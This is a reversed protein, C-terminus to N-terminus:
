LGLSKDQGKEYVWHTEDNADVVRYELVFPKFLEVAKHVDQEVMARDDQHIISAYSRVRNNIFDSAPYGSLTRVAESIFEMTWHEDLACRYVVGAINGVLSRFREESATLQATRELVRQELETRSAILEFQVLVRALVEERQIPKAIFDAGGVQFSRVRDDTDQLASIFIIPVKATSENQKLRQCVEFGSMGPMKIDLLILAPPNSLASALALEPEQTQRVRYGESILIDALLRLSELTDDVILIERFNDM